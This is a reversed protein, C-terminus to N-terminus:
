VLLNCKLQIITCSLHMQCELIGSSRRRHRKSVRDEEDGSTSSSEEFKHESGSGDQSCPTYSKRRTGRAESRAKLLANAREQKPNRVHRTSRTLGNLERHLQRMLAESAADIDGMTTSKITFAIHM